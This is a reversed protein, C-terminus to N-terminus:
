ADNSYLLIEAKICVTGWFVISTYLPLDAGTARVPLQISLIHM